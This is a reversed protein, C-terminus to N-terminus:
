AKATATAKTKALKIRVSRQAAVAKTRAPTFAVTLTGSIAKKRLLKRSAATTKLTLSVTGARKATRTGTAVTRGGSKVAVRFTGAAPARVSVKTGVVRLSTLSLSLTSSSPAGTAGTSGKAGPAGPAGAPGQAGPAGPAGA